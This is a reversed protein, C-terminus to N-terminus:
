WHWYTYTATVFATVGYIQLVKDHSSNVNTDCSFTTSTEVAIKGARNFLDVIVKHNIHSYAYTYFYALFKRSLYIVVM